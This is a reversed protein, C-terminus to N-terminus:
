KSKELIQRVELLDKQLDPYYGERIYQLKTKKNYCETCYYKSPSLIGIYKGCTTCLGLKQRELDRKRRYINHKNLCLSCLSTSLDLNIHNKGCVTCIGNKKNELRKNKKKINIIERNKSHYIKLRSLVKERNKIRYEKGRKREYEKNKIHYDKMYKSRCSRCESHLKDKNSRNKCFKETSLEKKCKSCKKTKVKNFEGLSM